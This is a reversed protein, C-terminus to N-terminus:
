SKKQCKKYDERFDIIKDSALRVNRKAAVLKSRMNEAQKIITDCAAVAEDIQSDALRRNNDFAKTFEAILNDVHENDVNAAKQSALEKKYEYANLAASRLLTIITIFNQPRVVFMKDYEYSVDTIGSYLESDKELLSVLVAYECDKKTRDKDLKKFFDENKHKTATEDNENKMEFMISLLEVGDIFERYIFDGKTGSSADNDKEFTANPFLSAQLRKFETYCHQELSEGVAKTSMAQKMQKYYNVEDQLTKVIEGHKQELELRLELLSQKTKLEAESKLTQEKVQWTQEALEMREDVKKQMVADYLESIVQTEESGKINFSQGCNPCRLNM